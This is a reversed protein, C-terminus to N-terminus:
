HLVGGSLVCGQMTAGVFEYAGIDYEAGQPRTVGRIDTTVAALTTGTNICPSTASLVYGTLLPNSDV